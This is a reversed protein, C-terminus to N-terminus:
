RWELVMTLGEGNLATDDAVTFLHRRYFSIAEHNGKMVGLVIRKHPSHKKLDELLATGVGARHHRPDVGIFYLKTEPSQTKHRVCTFGVISGDVADIAVRIWGKAYMTPGSFMHSGFDKTYSSRKAVELIAKHDLEGARRITITM